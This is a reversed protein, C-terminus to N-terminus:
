IYVKPYKGEVLKMKRLEQYIAKDVAKQKQIADLAIIYKVDLQQNRFLLRAFNENIIHGYITARVSMGDPFEYDPLPFCRQIQREFVIDKIGHSITDIM